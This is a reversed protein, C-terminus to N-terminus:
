AVRVKSGEPGKTVEIRQPLVDQLEAIHTIVLVKGFEQAVTQIANMVAQRNSQDCAGLGEDLVFLRIEAGARHALFKSLAVRLALDVMFREAGSYTQYPREAGGDLVTIRLVEAMTGSKTETQTDLRVALRGDAMKGLMDNALREIEPVANEVILAPVGAKKGCAQDLLEYVSLEERAEKINTETTELERQARQAEAIQQELRGIATRAEAENRRLTQLEVHKRALEDQAPALAKLAAEVEVRQEGFAVQEAALANVKDRLAAITGGLEVIRAQLEEVRRAAADLDAKLRSTRRVDELAQRAAEHADSDYGLADRERVAKQWADVHPNKTAHLEALRKQLGEIEARAKRAGSLLPCGAKTDGTCPVKELTTAQFSIAQMRSELRAIETETNKDWMAATRELDSALQQLRMYERAQRDFGACEKAFEAEMAVASEIDERMGLLTQKSAIEQRATEIQRSAKTIEANTWEIEQMKRSHDRQLANLRELLAPRQRLRAELDAIEPELEGILRNHAELAAKTEEYRELHVQYEDAQARLRDAQQELNDIEMKLTRVRERAREQLRDWLDLGLIRALAEKREQDTMNATFADAQGQLILSSATFTRYDMRLTSEIVAQTEAISKGSLPRWNGGDRVFFELTSKNRAISRGRAVRYTSGNLRFELEVRGETQGRTVYNDLDRAGGKTGQGFLAFTIADLLSSKGAGNEGVLAGCAIPSLDVSERRYSLFNELDLRIPEM